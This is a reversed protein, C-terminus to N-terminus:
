TFSYTSRVANQRDRDKNFEIFSQWEPGSGKYFEQPRPRTIGLPIFLADEPMEEPVEVDAEDEIKDKELGENPQITIDEHGGREDKLYWNLTYTTM